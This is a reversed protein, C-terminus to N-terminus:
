WSGVSVVYQLKHKVGKSELCAKVQMWSRAHVCSWKCMSLSIVLKMIGCNTIICQKIISLCWHIFFVQSTHSTICSQHHWFLSFSYVDLWVHVSYLLLLVFKLWVSVSFICVLCRRRDFWLAIGRYWFLNCYIFSEIHMLWWKELLYEVQCFYINSKIDHDNM